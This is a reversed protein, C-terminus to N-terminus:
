DLCNIKVIENIIDSAIFYYGQKKKKLIDGIYGNLWAAAKASQELNSTKALIGACLGALVDGTGAKAMGPNGTKNIFTKKSTIIKDNKGKLLIINNSIKKKLEKENKIKSNKLLTEYEKKHPTLISNKVDQLKIMKLADADIVKLKNKIIKNKLIKLVLKKTEANQGIGNGILIVNCKVAAKIIKSYHSSKLCTGPLKITMIDPCYSNAAIGVEKPSTLTVLDAGVRLAAVSCLLAAGAYQDSGTIALVHGSEGKHTESKRKLLKNLQSLNM